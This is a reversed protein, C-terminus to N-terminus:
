EAPAPPLDSNWTDRLYLWKGNRKVSVSMFKGSDVVAGDITAKYTGSEWGLDGSIGVETGPDLHMVVNAAKAGAVDAEFYALIEAAGRKGTTGPPMLLADDAYLGALGKADGANYYKGWNETQERIAAADAHDGAVASHTVGLLVLLSAVLWAINRYGM